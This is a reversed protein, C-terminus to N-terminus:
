PVFTNEVREWLDAYGEASDFLPELDVPRVGQQKLDEILDPLMGYHAVGEYNFDFERLSSGHSDITQSRHLSSPSGEVAVPFPYPVKAFQLRQVDAWDRSPTGKCGAAGFRAGPPVAVNFDTGFGIPVSHKTQDLLFLYSQAFNQSSNGCTLPIAPLDASVYTTSDFISEGSPLFINIMGGLKRIECVEDTRLNAENRRNRRAVDLFGTHSSFPPYKYTELQRLADAKAYESMHDIDIIMHQRALEHIVVSGMDLLGQANCEHEYGEASCDRSPGNTVLTFLAAGGYANTDFHIPFVHRVGMDHYRQIGFHVEEPTCRHTSCGLLDDVELGLVVALKNQAIADKAQQASYVIRYWGKGTGGFKKDIYAEMKKAESIQDEFANPACSIGSFPHLVHLVTCALENDVAFMVMLRQGGQYSRYLWQEYMGQHSVSDSTPWGKFDPYGHTSHWLELDCDQGARVLKGYLDYLGFHGHISSCSGLATEVDGYANGAVAKGGFALNAFQHNHTDAFGKPLSRCYCSMTTAGFVAGPDVCRVWEGANLGGDIRANLCMGAPANGPDPDACVSDCTASSDASIKRFTNPPPSTVDYDSIPSCGPDPVLFLGEEYIRLPGLGMARCDFAGPFTWKGIQLPTTRCASEPDGSIAGSLRALYLRRGSDTCEDRNVDKWSSAAAIAPFWGSVILVVFALLLRDCRDHQFNMGVAAYSSMLTPWPFSRTRRRRNLAGQTLDGWAEM